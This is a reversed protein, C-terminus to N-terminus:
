RLGIWPRLAELLRPAVIDIRHREEYRARGREGVVRRADPDLLLAVEDAMARLDPYPVAAGAWGDGDGEILEVIGADDFCVVPVGLASAELCVLPFTDERSSLVFVDAAALVSALDPTAPLHWARDAFGLRAAEDDWDCWTPRENRDGVWVVSVDTGARHLHWAVHLLLDPAKRWDFVGGGLVLPRDAPLGLVARAARPEPRRSGPEPETPLFYPVQVVREAAVGHAVLNAGASRAGVLLLDTDELLLRREADSLQFRIVDHMEHVHAVVARPRHLAPLSRVAWSANLYVLDFGSADVVPETVDDGGLLHVEGLAAFQELLEGGQQFATAVQVDTHARLWRQLGLLFMPPGTREAGHSVFLIRGAVM